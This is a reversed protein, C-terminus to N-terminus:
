VIRTTQSVLALFETSNMSETYNPKTIIVPLIQDTGTLIVTPPNTPFTDDDFALIFGVFKGHVSILGEFMTNSENISDLCVVFDTNNAAEHLTQRDFM